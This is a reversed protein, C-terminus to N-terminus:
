GPGSIQGDVILLTNVRGDVVELQHPIQAVSGATVHDLHPMLPGILYM